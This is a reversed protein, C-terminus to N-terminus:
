WSSFTKIELRKKVMYNNNVFFDLKWNETLRRIGRCHHEIAPVSITSFSTKKLIKPIPYRFGTLIRSFILFIPVHQRKQVRVSEFFFNINLFNDDVMSIVQMGISTCWLFETWQKQILFNLLYTFFIWFFFFILFKLGHQKKIVRLGESFYSILFFFDDGM